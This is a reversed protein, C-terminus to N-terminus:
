AGRRLILLTSYNRRAHQQSRGEPQPLGGPLHLADVKRFECCRAVTTVDDTQWRVQGSNVQDQCKVLVWKKSLRCAEIVGSLILSMRGCRTTPVEIGFRADMESMAPTGNLKYPPDWVVTDFSREEWGTFRADLHYKAGDRLADNTTLHQPEHVKWFGGVGYSLDLVDGEVYGLQAAQAILEANDLATSIALVDTM